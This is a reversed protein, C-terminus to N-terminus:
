VITVEWSQSAKLYRSLHISQVERYSLYKFKFHQFLLGCLRLKHLSKIENFLASLKSYFTTTTPKDSMLQTTQSLDGDLKSDRAQSPLLLLLFQYKWIFDQM